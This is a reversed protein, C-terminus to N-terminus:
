QPPRISYMLTGGYMHMQEDADSNKFKFSITKGFVQHTADLPFPLKAQVMGTTEDATISSLSYENSVRDLFYSTDINYPGLYDSLIWFDKFVKEQLINDLAYDKTKIYSNIAVGADNHGQNDIYVKGSANADAHYLTDKFLIYAGAAINFETWVWHDRNVGRSLVFTADNQDSLTNTTLSLWYREKNIASTMRPRRTGENWKLVTSQLEPNQDSNTVTFTARFNAYTNKFALIQSNVAQATCTSPFMNSSSSTCISFSITGSSLIESVDFTGFSTINTGITVTPAVYTGFPRIRPTMAITVDNVKPSLWSSTTTFSSKYRIYRQVTSPATSTVTQLAEWNVSDSSSQTEFALTTGTPVTSSITVTSWNWRWTQTTFGVDFARSVLNGSPQYQRGFTKVNANFPLFSAGNSYLGGLLPTDLAISWYVKDTATCNGTQNISVWYTVGSSISVPTMTSNIDSYSATIAAVNVVGSSLITASPGSSDPHIAVQVSSPSGIKKLRATVSTLVYNTTATFGQNINNCTEANDTDAHYYSSQVAEATNFALMLADVTSTSDVTTQTGSTFDASLTDVFSSVASATDLVVSGPTVTTSVYATPTSSGAAFDSQSTLTWSRQSFSSNLADKIRNYIKDSVLTVAAGTFIEVGRKSVFVIGGSYPQVSGADICGAESTIARIEFDDQDFGYLGHISNKKFLYLADNQGSFLASVGDSRDNLGVVYQVPDTALTGTTWTTGDLFKSTSLRNQNPQAEGSVWIRGKYEAILSGKPSGYIYTVTGSGAWYYVGQIADTFYIRGEANVASIISQTPSPVTAIVTSFTGDGNSAIISNSTAVIIWNNNTSDTYSWGNVYKLTTTTGYTSFGERSVLANDEDFWVNLADQVEDNAITLSSYNSNLGGAFSNIPFAREGDAFLFSTCGVLALITLLRRKM